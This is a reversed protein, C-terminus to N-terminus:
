GFNRNRRLIRSRDTISYGYDRRDIAGFEKRAERVADEFGMGDRVKESAVLDLYSHIEEDLDQDVRKKHFINRVFAKLRRTM